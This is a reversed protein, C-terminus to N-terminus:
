GSSSPDFCMRREALALELPLSGQADERGEAQAFLRLGRLVEWAEVGEALRRMEQREEALVDLAEGVGAKVLLLDRWWDLWLDLRAYVQGRNQSFQTAMQAAYAFREESDGNIIDLLKDLSEARQQALSHKLSIYPRIRIM